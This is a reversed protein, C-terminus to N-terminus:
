WKFALVHIYCLAKHRNCTYYRGLGLLFKLKKADDQDKTEDKDVDTASDDGEDREEEWDVQVGEDEDQERAKNEVDVKEKEQVGEDEDQERAKNEM